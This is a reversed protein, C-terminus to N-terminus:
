EKDGCHNIAYSFVMGFMNHNGQQTFKILRSKSRNNKSASRFNNLNM